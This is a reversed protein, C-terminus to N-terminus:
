FGKALVMENIEIIFISFNGSELNLNELKSLDSNRNLEYYKKV